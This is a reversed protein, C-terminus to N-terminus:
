QSLSEKSGMKASKDYDVGGASLDHDRCPFFFTRDVVCFCFHVLSVNQTCVVESDKVSSICNEQCPISAKGQKSLFNGQRERRLCHM